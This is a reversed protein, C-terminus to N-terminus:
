TLYYKLLFVRTKFRERVILNYLFDNHQYKECVFASLVCYYNIEEDWKAHVNVRVSLIAEYVKM